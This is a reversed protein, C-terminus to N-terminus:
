FKDTIHLRGIKLVILIIIGPLFCQPRQLLHFQYQLIGPLKQQLAPLWLSFWLFTQIQTIKIKAISHTKTRQLIYKCVGGAELIQCLFAFTRDKLSFESKIRYSPRIAM